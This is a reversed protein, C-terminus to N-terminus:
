KLTSSRGRVGPSGRKSGDRASKKQLEKKLPDTPKIAIEYMTKISM